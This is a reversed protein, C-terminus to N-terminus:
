EAAPPMGAEEGPQRDEDLPVLEVGGGGPRLRLQLAANGGTIDLAKLRHQLNAPVAAKDQDTNYPGEFLVKGDQDKVIVQKSGGEARLEVTGEADKVKVCSNLAFRLAGKEGAGEEGLRPVAKRFLENLDLRLNGDEGPQLPVAMGRLGELLEGQDLGMEEFQKQLKEMQERILRDDFGEPLLQELNGPLPAGQGRFFPFVGGGPRAGPLGRPAPLHAPREGLTVKAQQPQGERILDLTVEEGPKLARVANRLALHDALVQGNIKTLVDHVKLGAKAAPSGESVFQVALGNGVRLHSSLLEDVPFTMVGLWASAPAQPPKPMEAPQQPVGPQAPQHGRNGAPPAEAPPQPAPPADAPQVAHVLGAAGLGCASVILSRIVTAKM